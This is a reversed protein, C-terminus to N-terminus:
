EEGKPESPPKAKTKLSAAPAQPAQSPPSLPDAARKQALGMSIMEAGNKPNTAFELFQAPDNGFRARIHASLASFQQEAHIVTNLAAQYTPADSFDGYQPKSQMMQPLQGTNLFKKVINNIDADDKGSQDTLGPDGIFSISHNNQGPNGASRIPYTLEQSM